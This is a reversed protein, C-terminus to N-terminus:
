PSFNQLVRKNWKAAVDEPTIGPRDDTPVYLQIECDLCSISIDSGSRGLLEWHGASTDMEAKGGCLPCGKLEIM